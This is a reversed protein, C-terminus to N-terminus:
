TGPKLAATMFRLLIARAEDRVKASGGLTVGRTVCRRAYAQLGQADNIKSGDPLELVGDEQMRFPCNASNADTGLRTGIVRDFAHAAGALVHIEAPRGAAALDRAYIECAEATTLDDKEGSLILIPAAVPRLPTQYRNCGGYYLAFAAIRQTPGLWRAALTESNAMVQSTGGRSFGLIGIRAADIEPLAALAKVAAFIDAASSPFSVQSQDQQTNIVGRGGFWDLLLAAIGVKVMAEAFGRESATIGLSAHLIVVAPVKGAVSPPLHLEGRLTVKKHTDLPGAYLDTYAPLDHSEITLMRQAAAPAIGIVLGVFLLSFRFWGLWRSLRTTMTTKEKQSFPDANAVAFLVRSQLLVPPAPPGKPDQLDTRPSQGGGAGGEPLGTTMWARIRAIYSLSSTM